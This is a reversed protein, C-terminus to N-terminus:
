SRSRKRIYPRLTGDVVSECYAVFEEDIAEFCDTCLCRRVYELECAERTIYMLIAYAAVCGLPRISRLSLLVEFIDAKCPSPYSRLADNDLLAQAYLRSTFPLEGTFTALVRGDFAYVLPAFM